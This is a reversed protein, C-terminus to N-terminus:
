NRCPQPLCPSAVRDFLTAWPDCAFRKSLSGGCAAPDLSLHFRSVPIHRNRDRTKFAAGNAPM